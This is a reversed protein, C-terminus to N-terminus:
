MNSTTTTNKQNVLCGIGYTTLQINLLNTALIQNRNSSVKFVHVGSLFIITNGTLVTNLMIM